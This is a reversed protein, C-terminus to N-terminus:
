MPKEPDVAYAADFNPSRPICSTIRWSVALLPTRVVSMEGPGTSVSMQFGTSGSEFGPKVLRLSMIFDPVHRRCHDIRNRLRLM